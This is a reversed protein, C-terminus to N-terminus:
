KLRVQYWQTYVGTAQEREFQEQSFLNVQYVHKGYNKANKELKSMHYHHIDAAQMTKLQSNNVRKGDLWVGYQAPDVFAKFQETSLSKREPAFQRFRAQSKEVEFFWKREADSLEKAQKIVEEGDKTTFGVTQGGMILALGQLHDKGPVTRSAMMGGDNIRYYIHLDGIRTLGLEGDHVPPPPPPLQNMDIPPPPPPISSADSAKEVPPPPPPPQTVTQGFALCIGLAFPLTLFQRWNWASAPQLIMHIRKSLNGNSSASALDPAPMGALQLLLELYPRPSPLQQTIQADVEYEHNLRIQRRYWWLLPHFWLFLLVSEILLLDWSHRAHVHIREHEILLPSPAPQEPIFVWHLFSFPRKISVHRVLTFTDQDAQTGQRVLQRIHWLNRGLRLLMLSSGILLGIQWGNIEQAIPVAELLPLDQWFFAPDAAQVPSLWVTRVTLFPIIGATILSGLLYFRNFQPAKKNALFLHYWGLFLALCASVKILYM